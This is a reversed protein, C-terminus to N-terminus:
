VDFRRAFIGHGNGDAGSEDVWVVISNGAGDVAISTAGMGPTTQVGATNVNVLTEFSPALEPTALIGLWNTSTSQSFLSMTDIVGSAYELDWDGGLSEHGTDDISAAVDAGTLEALAEMMTVGADTEALECGYLLLDANDALSSRWQALEGAYGSLNDSTVTSSGLRLQADNGHSLIHIANVNDYDALIESVQDIGDRSGDLLYIELDTDRNGALLDDILRQHDEVGSDVFVLELRIGLDMSRVSQNDTDDPTVSAPQSFEIQLPDTSQPDFVGSEDVMPALPTASFM